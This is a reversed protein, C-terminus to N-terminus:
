TAPWLILRRTLGKRAARPSGASRRDHLDPERMPGDQLSQLTASSASLISRKWELLLLRFYDQQVPGMYEEDETPVYDPALARRAKELVDIDSTASAM